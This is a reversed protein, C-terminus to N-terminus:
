CGVVNNVIEILLDKDRLMGVFTGNELVPLNILRRSAMLHLAEMLPARLDIVPETEVIDRVSLNGVMKCQALFMGTLYSAYPSDKLAGPLGMDLVTGIRVCGVFREDRDYVLVTRIPQEAVWGVGALLSERLATLVDGVSQDDYVRHYRRAPVILESLARERLALPQDRELLRRIKAALQDMDVPKQLFDVIGLRIGSLADDLRGHGTLIIVPLQRHKARLEGLTEIGSRGPLKLDLVMLAFTCADAANMIELAREGSEALTVGFGRRRLAQSTAIRFDEEDDVLIIEIQEM